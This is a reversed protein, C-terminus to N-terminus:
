NILYIIYMFLHHKGYFYINIVITNCGKECTSGTYGQICGLCTGDVVDCRGDLCNQHCPTSCNEGYYSANPCGYVEVECLENSAYYSYGAPLPFHTRNNYYIVYRGSLRCSINLPNPITEMTYFTDKFCLSWDEKTTTNSVYLSFGLFNTTLTNNRDWIVNDTAYQIFIHHISLVGGLDVRWEATSRGYKSLTCQGGHVYLDSKDGDVARDADFQGVGPFEPYQQWAPRNLAINEYTNAVNFLNWFSIVFLPMFNM